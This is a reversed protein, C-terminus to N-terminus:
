QAGGREDQVRVAHEIRSVALRLMFRSRVLGFAKGALAALFVAGTEAAINAGALPTARDVGINWWLVAIIASVVAVGGEVCGCGRYHRNIAREISEPRELSPVQVRIEEFSRRGLLKTTIRKFRDLSHLDFIVFVSSELSSAHAM